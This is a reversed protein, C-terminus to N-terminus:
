LSNYLLIHERIFREWSFLSARDLARQALETRVSSSNILTLLAQCLADSDTPPVLLAADGV